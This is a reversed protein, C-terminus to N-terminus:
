ERTLQSYLDIKGKNVFKDSTVSVVLIDSIKKAYKFHNICGLHVVDFVGHCM